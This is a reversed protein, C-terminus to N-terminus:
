TPLQTSTLPHLLLARSPIVRRRAVEM